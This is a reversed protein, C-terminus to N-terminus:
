QSPVKSYECSIYQNFVNLTYISIEKKRKLSILKVNTDDIEPIRTFIQLCPLGKAVMSKVNITSLLITENLRCMKTGVVYTITSFM